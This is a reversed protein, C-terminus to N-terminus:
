GISSNLNTERLHRYMAVTETKLSLRSTSQCITMSIILIFRFGCSRNPTVSRLLLRRKREKGIM